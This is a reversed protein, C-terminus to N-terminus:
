FKYHSLPADAPDGSDKLIALEQESIWEFACLEHPPFMNSTTVFSIKKGDSSLVGNEKWKGAWLTFQVNNYMKKSDELVLPHTNGFEGYKWRGKLTSVDVGEEKFYYLHQVQLTAAGLSQISVNEGEVLLIRSTCGKIEYYGNAWPASNEKQM